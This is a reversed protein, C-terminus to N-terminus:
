LKDIMEDLKADAGALVADDIPTKSKAAEEKLMALIEHGFAKLAPKLMPKLGQLLAQGIRKLM